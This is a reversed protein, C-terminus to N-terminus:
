ESPRHTQLFSEVITVQFLWRLVIGMIKWKLCQPLVHNFVKGCSEPQFDNLSVSHTARTTQLYLTLRTQMGLAKPSPSPGRWTTGACSLEGPLNPNVWSEGREQLYNKLTTESHGPFAASPPSLPAETGARLAYLMQFGQMTERCHLCLELVQSVLELNM